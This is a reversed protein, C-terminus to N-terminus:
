VLAWHLLWSPHRSSGPRGSTCLCVSLTTRMKLFCPVSNAVPASCGLSMCVQSFGSAPREQSIAHGGRPVCRFCGVTLRPTWTYTTINVQCWTFMLYKVSTIQARYLSTLSTFKFAILYVYCHGKPFFIPQLLPGPPGPSSLFGRKTPIIYMQFIVYM